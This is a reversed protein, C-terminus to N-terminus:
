SQEEATHGWSVRVFPNKGRLRYGAARLISLIGLNKENLIIDIFIKGSAAAEQIKRVVETTDTNQVTIKFAEQASLM